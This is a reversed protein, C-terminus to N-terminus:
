SGQLADAEAASTGSAQSAQEQFFALFSPSFIAIPPIQQPDVRKCALVETRAGELLSEDSGGTVQYLSFMAAARLLHVHAAARPTSFESTALALLVGAYDRNLFAEAAATLSAPPPSTAQRLAMTVAELESELAEIESKSLSSDQLARAHELAQEVALRSRAVSTPYPRLYESAALEQRAEEVLPEVKATMATHIQQAQTARHGSALRALEVFERRTTVAVRAAEQVEALAVDGATLRAGVRDLRAEAATQRDRLEKTVSDSIPLATLGQRSEVASVEARKVAQLAEELASELNSMQRCATRGEELQAYEPFRLVVGQSESEQWADLAGRCDGSEFLAKGLYFHPLYRRFFFSKKVKARATPQDAIARRMMEAAQTWQEAEAASLGLKYFELFDAARAPMATVGIMVAVVLLQLFRGVM